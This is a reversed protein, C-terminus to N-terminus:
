IWRWGWRHMIYVNYTHKRSKYTYCTLYECDTVEVAIGAVEQPYETVVVQSLCEMDEVVAELDEAVQSFSSFNILNCFNIPLFQSELTIPQILITYLM